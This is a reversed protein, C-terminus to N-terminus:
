EDQEAARGDAQAQQHEGQGSGTRRAAVGAHVWGLLTGGLALTSALLLAGGPASVTVLLASAAGAAVMLAARQAERGTALEDRASSLVVLLAPVTALVVLADLLTTLEAADAAALADRLSTPSLGLRIPGLQHFAAGTVALAAVAGTGIRLLITRRPLGRDVMTFLGFLVVASSLVGVVGPVEQYPIPVPVGVDENRPPEVAVCVAVFGAAALLLVGVLLRRGYRPVEAGLLIAAMVLAILVVAALVENDPVLYASFTLALMAALAILVAARLLPWQAANTWASLGALAAAFAVGGLLWWGGAAAGAALGILLGAGLLM